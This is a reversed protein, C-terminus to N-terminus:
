DVATLRASVVPELATAVAQMGTARPHLASGDGPEATIGSVWAEAPDACADHGVSARRMSLYSAGADEAAGRMATELSGEAAAGARLEAPTVPVQEPPCTGDDPMLRLYSVLVVLADPARRQIEDLVETVDSRIGDLAAPLRDTTAQCTEPASAPRAYCYGFLSPIYGADNGGISITVVDTEPGVADVQPPLVTPQQRGLLVDKTTAGPCSVDTLQDADLGLSRAVLSPYNADSRLCPGSPTGIGAGAVASDGLAVYSVKAPVSPVPEPTSGTCAALLLTSAIAGSTALRLRPRSIM